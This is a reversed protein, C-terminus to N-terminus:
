ASIRVEAWPEFALRRRPAEDTFEDFRDLLADGLADIEEPDFLDEVQPLRDEDDEIAELQLPVAIPEVELPWGGFDEETEMRHRVTPEEAALDVCFMRSEIAAHAALMEALQDFLAVRTEASDSAEIQELIYGAEDHQSRLLETVEFGPTPKM